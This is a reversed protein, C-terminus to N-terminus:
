DGRIPQTVARTLMASPQEVEFPPMPPWTVVDALEVFADVLTVDVAVPVPAHTPPAGSPLHSMGSPSAHPMQASQTGPLMSQPPPHTFSPLHSLCSGHMQGSQPMSGLQLPTAHM